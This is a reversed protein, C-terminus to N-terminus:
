VYFDIAVMDLQFYESLARSFDVSASILDAVRKGRVVGGDGSLTLTVSGSKPRLSALDGMYPSLSASNRWKM